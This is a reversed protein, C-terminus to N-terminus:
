HERRLYVVLPESNSELRPNYQFFLLSKTAYGPKSFRLEYTGSPVGVIDFKGEADTFAFGKRKQLKEREKSTRLSLQEWTQLEPRTFVEVLIGEIPHKLGDMVAGKIQKYEGRCRVGSPDNSWYTKPGRNLIFDCAFGQLIFIALVTL